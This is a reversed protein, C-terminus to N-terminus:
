LNSLGRPGTTNYYEMSNISKLDCMSTNDIILQVRFYHADNNMAKVKFIYKYMNLSLSLSISSAIIREIM